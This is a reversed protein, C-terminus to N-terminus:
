REGSVFEAIDALVPARKRAPISLAAVTDAHELKPYIKLRVSDGRAILAAALNRANKPWVSRDAEGHILLMPPAGARAFSIPQGQSYASPPGFIDRTDDETLPLFDYPGSLGIVGAIAMGSKGISALYRQDLSLLVAIHAGASHGMLYLKGPDAGYGAAHDSAWAAALAADRMFGAMRVQPYHRYNPLVAVYGLSCLAAAVFRYQSKDGFSWRGGHWFVVIPADARVGDPKYVDLRQQPDSGYVIDASRSYRGFFAPLNAAFLGIGVCGALGLMLLM